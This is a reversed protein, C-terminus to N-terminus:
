YKLLDMLWSGILWEQYNVVVLGMFESTTDGHVFIDKRTASNTEAHHEFLWFGMGKNFLGLCFWPKTPVHGCVKSVM